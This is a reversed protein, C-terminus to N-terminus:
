NAGSETGSNEAVQVLGPGTGTISPVTSAGAHALGPGTGTIGYAISSAGLAKAADAHSVFVARSSQASTLAGNRGRQVALLTIALAVIILGEAIAIVWPLRVTRPRQPLTLTGVKAEM